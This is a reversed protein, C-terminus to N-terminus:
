LLERAVRNKVRQPLGSGGLKKSLRILNDFSAWGAVWLNPSLKFGRAGDAKRWNRLVAKGTKKYPKM